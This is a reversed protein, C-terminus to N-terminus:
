IAITKEVDALKHRAMALNAKNRDLVFYLFLGAAGKGKIPRIIHYAKGLTILIDEIEDGLDLDHMVRMKARIVESNGAAAIDLNIDGGGAHGLSMGSELDVVAVAVAGSVQMAATLSGSLNAM